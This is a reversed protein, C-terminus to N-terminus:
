ESSVSSSLCIPNARAWNNEPAKNVESQIQPECGFNASQKGKSKDDFTILLGLHNNATAMLNSGEDM